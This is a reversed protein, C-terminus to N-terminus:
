YNIDFSAASAMEKINNVIDQAIETPLTNIPFEKDEEETIPKEPYNSEDALNYGLGEEDSIGCSIVLSLIQQNINITFIAQAFPANPSLDELALQTSNPQFNANPLTKMVEQAVQDIKEIAEAQTNAAKVKFMPFNIQKHM